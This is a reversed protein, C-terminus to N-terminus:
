QIHDSTRHISGHILAFCCITLGFVQEVKPHLIVACFCRIWLVCGGITSTASLTHVLQFSHVGFPDTAFTIGDETLSPVDVTACVGLSRSELTVLGTNIFTDIDGQLLTLSPLDQTLWM